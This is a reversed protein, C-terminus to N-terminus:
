WSEELEFARRAWATSDALEDRQVRGDPRAARLWAEIAERAATARALGRADAVVDLADVLDLPLIVRVEATKGGPTHKSRFRMPPMPRERWDPMGRRLRAEHSTCIREDGYRSLGPRGCHPVSCRPQTGVPLREVVPADSPRGQRQRQYHASCLGLARVPRRCNPSSCTSM